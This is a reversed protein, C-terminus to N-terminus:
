FSFAESILCYSWLLPRPGYGTAILSQLRFNSALSKLHSLQAIFVTVTLTVCLSIYEVFQSNLISLISQPNLMVSLQSNHSTFQSNLSNLIACQSYNLIAFQSNSLIAPQSNCITFQSNRITFLQSNHVTFQSNLTTIPLKWMHSLWTVGQSTSVCILGLFEAECCLRPM